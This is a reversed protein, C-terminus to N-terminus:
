APVLGRLLLRAMINITDGVDDIPVVNEFRQVAILKTGGNNAWYYGAAQGPVTLPNGGTFSSVVTNALLPVSSPDLAAVLANLTVAAYGTWTCETLDALVTAPTIPVDEQYLHLKPPDNATAWDNAGDLLTALIESMGNDTIIPNGVVDLINM